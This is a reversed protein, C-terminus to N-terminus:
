GTLGPRARLRRPRHPLQPQLLPRPHPHAAWSRRLRWIAPLDNITTDPGTTRLRADPVIVIRQGTNTARLCYDILALDGFQPNLGGLQETPRRPPHRAGREGRERQLGLTGYGFFNDMSSRTATCSTSPSARPSRSGPKTRHTRGPRARDSRRRRHRAPQQLRDPPDALRPHPRRRPDAHPALHEATAADAAAALATARIALRDARRDHDHAVDAIGAAHLADTCAALAHERHPSCSTGHPIPSPSGHRPPRRSGTPRGRRRARARHESLPDVRHAVRYLGPRATAWRPTSGAHARPPRRDRQAGGRLRLAQRRRRGDLRRPRALPLPDAPHSRDPRHAGRAAPDHRRGSLRRVRIRFGGIETVLARRYVGLHCTYGNTRLTDPSWGPKLHLWIQRGDMVIDEDTYIMDLDPQAAIQDAVRQLADPALTDDHDLLAIYDGTALELAANTAASIGGATDRRTLHIRPDSAAHRELAAIVDPNTSGDDVLCLEWDTFTQARVSAIAEELM